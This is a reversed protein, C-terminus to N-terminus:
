DDTMQRKRDETTRGGDDSRQNEGDDTTLWRDDPKGELAAGRLHLAGGVFHEEFGTRPHEDLSVAEVKWIESSM